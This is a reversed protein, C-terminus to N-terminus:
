IKKISNLNEKFWDYTSCLGDKLSITPEWGLLNLKTTDLLKRPTGDPKSLDFNIDGKFNTVESILCALEKISIDKGWGVNVHSGNVKEHFYDKELNMLHVSAKALDSVHMFERKPKGSGWIVIEDLNALKASHFRTILGPIVHSNEHHFNDNPGYLNTPMISRYDRGYQKNFSECLKLGTIKAIAYAENTEELSGTMLYEEKIPQKSFKPYICSSGLFLIKNIEAHNASNMINSQIMLNEYIFDAPYSQNAFIGGVKAAALYIQDVQNKKFFNRVDNQDLLNLDSKEVTIINLDQDSRKLQDHIARGVMGNHGAIFINM